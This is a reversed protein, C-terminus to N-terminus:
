ILLTTIGLFHCSPIYILHAQQYIYSVGTYIWSPPLIEKGHSAKSSYAMKIAFEFCKEYENITLDVTREDRMKKWSILEDKYFYWSGREKIEM